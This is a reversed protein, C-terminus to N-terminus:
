RLIREVNDIRSRLVVFHSQAQYQQSYRALYVLWDVILAPIWTRFTPVYNEPIVTNYRGSYEVSTLKRNGLISFTTIISVKTLM